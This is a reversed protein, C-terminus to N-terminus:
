APVGMKLRLRGVGREAHQQVTSISVGLLEAVEAYTWELCYILIVAVRQRESLRSLAEPLGPEVRPLVPDDVPPLRPPRRRLRSARSRGVRYLYGAPNTMVRLQDWHEWGYALAEATGEVGNEVGVAAVLAHRLRPEVQKVFETFSATQRDTVV